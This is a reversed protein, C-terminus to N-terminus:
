HLPLRAEITKGDGPPLFVRVEEALQRVLPWGFGGEAAGCARERRRVDTFHPLEGSPDAVSITVASADVDVGFGTLGGAHRLANTVLESTVLLADGVATASPPTGPELAAVELAEAVRARAEAADRPVPHRSTHPTRHGTTVGM